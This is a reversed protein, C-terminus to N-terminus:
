VNGRGKSVAIKGLQADMKRSMGVALSDGDIVINRDMNSSIDPLYQGVLSILREFGDNLNSIQANFDLSYRQMPSQTILNDVSAGMKVNSLSGSAVNLISSVKNEISKEASDDEEIGAGVGQALFVGVEDAMVKSPSAIKFVKKFRKVVSDGFSTIKNMIWGTMDSIGNFIGKVLDKGANRLKTPLSKFTNIITNGITTCASKLSNALSKVGNVLGKIGNSGLTKLTTPLNSLANKITNFINTSASKITGAMSKIGNAFGTFIKKGMSMWQYALYVDVIAKLIKGANQVLTPIASLLGKILELLLTAGMLWIMPMNDYLVNTLTTIITPAQEVITLILDPLASMIGQILMMMLEFGRTILIPAQESITNSLTQIFTLIKPIAVPLGDIIGKILTELLTLGADLLLPLNDILSNVIQGLVDGVIPVLTPLASSIGEILSVILLIGADILLPLNQILAEVVTLICDVALPIFQPLLRVIADIVKTILETFTNILTPLMQSVANIIADMVTPLVAVMNDIIPTVNKIAGDIGTALNQVLAKMDADPNGLGAIFNQWSASLSNFSGEITKGAEDATAGAIGLKTQMVSIANIINSFSMSSGDVTVGLKKQVDTMKSADKILRQMEGKTGGYGLKLNDLMTYNQKAFGQYANQISEMSTGMKNANDAMDTVARDAVNCAKETDGGLSQLLSASFSTVQQMYDNASMGATKFANNANAIVKEASNGFLTEIGGISQQLAGYSSSVNKILAVSGTAVAGTIALTTKGLGALFSGMKGSVKEGTGTVGNLEKEAKDVGDISLKGVIEFLDM